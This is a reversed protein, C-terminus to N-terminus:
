KQKKIIYLPREKTEEYIRALYEGIIGLFVMQVGGIFIVVVMLSTWGQATKHLLRVCIAYILYLFSLFSVLLGFYTSMRLPFSSFSTIGDIAFSVMRLLSYKSKGAPRPEAQYPIFEQKYGAWSVLGRLFRVHEKLGRITTIVNKDLLRFDASNQQFDVNTICRILWYFFRASNKKFLGIDASDKRITNVVEAGQEWKNLLEPILEPPHQLDSDLTIVADGKAYDLGASLAIMHGFNRSFVLLRVNNNRSAIEELIKLSHDLSGDDVFIIEYKYNIKGLVSILRDYFKYLLGEENYVPVVISITAKATAPSM